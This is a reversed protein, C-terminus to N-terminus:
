QVNQKWAHETPQRSKMYCESPILNGLRQESSTLLPTPAPLSRIRASDSINEKGERKSFFFIAKKSNCQQHKHNM